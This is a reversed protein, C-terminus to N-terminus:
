AIVFEPYTRTITGSSPTTASITEFGSFTATGGEPVVVFYYAYDENDYDTRVAYDSADGLVTGDNSIKFGVVEYGDAVFNTNDGESINNSPDFNKFTGGTVVIAAKGDKRGDDNLNITYYGTCNGEDDYSCSATEYYGSEITATGIFVYVAPSTAGFIRVDKLTVNQDLKYGEVCVGVEPDIINGNMITSDINSVGLHFGRDAGRSSPTYENVLSYGNMDITQHYYVEFSDQSDTDQVPIDEGFVGTKYSDFTYQATLYRYQSMVTMVDVDMILRSEEADTVAAYANTPNVSIGNYQVAYVKFSLYVDDKLSGSSDLMDSNVLDADYSVTDNQLVQFSYDGPVRAQYYVKSGDEDTKFYRWYGGHTNDAIQYEVLGQTNDTVKLFVWANVTNTLTVVPDKTESTGPIIDFEKVYLEDSEEEAGTETLTVRIQNANFENTITDTSDKLYSFTASGVLLVVALTAGIVTTLLKKKNKM